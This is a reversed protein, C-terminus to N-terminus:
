GCDKAYEGTTEYYCANAFVVSRFSPNSCLFFETMQDILIEAQDGMESGYSIAKLDTTLSKFADDVCSRVESPLGEYMRTRM